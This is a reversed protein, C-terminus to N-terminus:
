ARAPASDDTCLLEKPYKAAARKYGSERISRELTTMDEPGVGEIEDYWQRFTRWQDPKGEWRRGPVGQDACKGSLRVALSEQVFTQLWSSLQGLQRRMEIRRATELWLTLGFSYDDGYSVSWQSGGRKVSVLKGWREHVIERLLKDLREVSVKGPSIVFGHNM